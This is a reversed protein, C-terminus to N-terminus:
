VAPLVLRLGSLFHPIGDYRGPDHERQLPGPAFTDLFTTDLPSFRLLVERRQIQCVGEQKTLFPFTDIYEVPM